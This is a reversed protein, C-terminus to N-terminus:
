SKETKRYPGYVGIFTLYMFPGWLSLDAGWVICNAFMIATCIIAVITKDKM